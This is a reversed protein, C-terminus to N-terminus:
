TWGQAKKPAERPEFKVNRFDALKTADALPDLVGQKCRVRYLCGDVAFLLDGCHDWDAWDSRGLRDKDKGNAIVSHETMYWPGNREKIGVISMELAYKKPWKPNPKQWAIAPSPEWWVAAGYDDKATTPVSTLTWGDRKLRESWIPDDEGRGPHAGFPDIKLWQPLSFGEGLNMETARHNLAVRRQTLFHGGGGWGDGKPWLALATLFPPRSIATWSYLPKRYTAAFYLLFNGDPSLDSRREYIRGKLWQGPEFKDDATHWGILLVQDSPGRRFIVAFPRNRALIAYIRTQSPSLKV